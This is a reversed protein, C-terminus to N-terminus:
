DIRMETIYFAELDKGENKLKEGLNFYCQNRYDILENSLSIFKKHFPAIEKQVFEYRYNDSYYNDYEELIMGILNVSVNASISLEKLEAVTQQSLPMALYEIARERIDYPKTLDESGLLELQDQRLKEM